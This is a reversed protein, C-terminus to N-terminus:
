HVMSLVIAGGRHGSDIAQMMSHDSLLFLVVQCPILLDEGALHLLDLPVYCMPRRLQSLGVLVLEVM